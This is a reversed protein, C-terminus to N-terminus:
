RAQQEAFELFKQLAPNENTRLYALGTELSAHYDRVDLTVYGDYISTAVEEPIAEIGFGLLMTAMGIGQDEVSIVPVEPHEALYPYTALLVDDNRHAAVIHPFRLLDEVCASPKGALPHTRSLAIRLRSSTVGALAVDDRGSMCLAATLLVDYDGRKLQEYQELSDVRRLAIEVEPYRHSFASLSGLITAQGTNTIGVTLVGANGCAISRARSVSRDFSALLSPIERYYMRGADTLAVGHTTRAFLTIGLEAELAKIQQSIAPQAVHCEEAAKTFNLNRAVSAFYRLQEIRM